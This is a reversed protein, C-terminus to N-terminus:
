KAQDHDGSDAKANVIGKQRHMGDALNGDVVGQNRNQSDDEGSKQQAFFEAGLIDDSDDHDSEADM